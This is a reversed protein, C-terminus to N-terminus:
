ATPRRRVLVLSLLGATLALVIHMLGSVGYLVVLGLISLILLSAILDRLL